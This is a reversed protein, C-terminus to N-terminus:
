PPLWQRGAGHSFEHLLKAPAKKSAAGGPYRIAFQQRAENLSPVFTGERSDHLPVAWHNPTNTATQEAVMVVGFISELSGEQDEGAFGRTDVWPFQDGVPQVADCVCGCVSSVGLDLVLSKTEERNRRCGIVRHQRSAAGREM